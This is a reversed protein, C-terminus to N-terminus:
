IRYSVEGTVLAEGEVDPALAVSRTIISGQMRAEGVFLGLKAPLFVPRRFEVRLSAFLPSAGRLLQRIVAHAILAKTCYGQVFLTKFGLARAAARSWHIPNFDGSVMAYRQGLDRPLRFAAIDRGHAIPAETKPGRPAKAKPVHLEMTNRFIEVSPADAEHVITEVRIRARRENDDIAIVRAQYTAKDNLCLPRTYHVESGAHLVRSYDYPLRLKLLTDSLVAMNWTVYYTPPLATQGGPLKFFQPDVGTARMFARLLEPNAHPVAGTVLSRESFDNPIAGRNKRLGSVALAGMARVTRRHRYLGVIPSALSM